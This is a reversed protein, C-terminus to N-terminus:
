KLSKRFVRNLPKLIIDKEYTNLSFHWISIAYIFVYLVGFILLMSIRNLNVFRVMLIGCIVPTILGPIFKLIQKWFYGMDLGVKFHNYLNMILGNALLLSIATGAAAGVPGYKRTLPISLLLNGLAMFMYLISRFQHMNKARQIEIGINQILPITVPLLLLLGVYYSDQYGSGAWKLIFPKGFFIYGSMILALIAFQIRGIRTFLQTLVSDDDNEAVMIHVRPIFVNSIATSIQSYYNNLTSAVSYVAVGVTGQFRGILFKDVNWNIQDVVLNIFIYFSFVSMEKLLGPEMNKFSFRMELKNFCYVAYIIEIVLNLISTSIAVGVSEFGLLLAPLTIFPSTATKILQIIKHFTFRENATIYSTFVISPFSFGLNIVLIYMLHKAKISEVATLEEGFIVNTYQALMFGAIVAILGLLSFVILFMGNLTAIEDKEENVKYRSYYRVYASGFGFNLVGLYSVVSSVLNYLGYESQGLLRLLIPTYILSVLFGLALNIYTLTAGAKRENIVM